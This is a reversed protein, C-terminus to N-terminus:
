RQCASLVHVTSGAEFVTQSQSSNSFLGSPLTPNWSVNEVLPEANCAYTTGTASTFSSGGWPCNSDGSSLASSTVSMGNTGNAGNAGNTGNTGNTGAAGTPGAPGRAGTRGARGAPGRHGVPGMPGIQSWRVDTDNASCKPAAVTTVDHLVGGDKSLCAFYTTSRSPSATAMTVVVGSGVLTMAAVGISLRTWYNKMLNGEEISLSMKAWLWDPFMCDRHIVQLVDARPGSSSKRPARRQRRELNAGVPEIVPAHGAADALPRHFSRSGLSPANPSPPLRTLRVLFPQSVTSPFRTTRLSTAPNWPM